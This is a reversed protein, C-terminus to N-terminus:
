MAEYAQEGHLAEDLGTKEEAEQIKVPTVKNIVILMLYTFVFAYISSVLIAMLQTTFFSSNGYLLGDAGAPNVAKSAFIGLMVVGIMGGVGHVGWVDLADDLKLYNKLYVAFYCVVGSVTGIVVAANLTVFGAAPTITALGAVSGTLLGLFKPKGEFVWAVLLWAVGAFSAAVDTNLFAQATIGDVKLQSGANFGYWGFWLLGTGLAVLPISHPLPEKVSRSGVFLVSALAAMGAINHVVIGGAFDLVGLKALYGNGWIMHVFPFYVLFLWTILFLLYAKFTVRNAFAGTILAPTIIAFMMQYSAFVFEPITPSVACPTAATVGWMFAKSFDGIFGGEGGSFCLSYGCVYWIVTTICLSAFSQMMVALVNKRGVLGGYFFALGPTMLMVLSASVLMFGTDGTNFNM